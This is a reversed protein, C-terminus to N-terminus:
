GGVYLKGGLAALANVSSNLGPTGIGTMWGLECQGHAPSAGQLWAALTILVSLVGRWARGNRDPSRLGFGGSAEPHRSAWSRSSSGSVGTSDNSRSAAPGAGDGSAHIERAAETPLGASSGAGREGQQSQCAATIAQM